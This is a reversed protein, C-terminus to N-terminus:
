IDNRNLGQYAAIVRDFEEPDTIEGYKNDSIGPYYYLVYKEDNGIGELFIYRKDEQLDQMVALVEFNNTIGTSDNNLPIIYNDFVVANKNEHDCDIVKSGEKCGLCTDFGCEKTCKLCKCKHCKELQWLVESHDAKFDELISIYNNGKFMGMFGQKASDAKVSGLLEMYRALVPLGAYYKRIKLVKPDLFPEIENQAYTIDSFIRGYGEKERSIYDDLKHM